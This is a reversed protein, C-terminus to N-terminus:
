INKNRKIWLNKKIGLCDKFQKCSYNHIESCEVAKKKKGKQIELIEPFILFWKVASMGLFIAAHNYRGSRMSHTCRWKFFDMWMKFSLFFDVLFSSFEWSARGGAAIGLTSQYILNELWLKPNQWRQGHGGEAWVKRAKIQEKKTRKRRPVHGIQNKFSTHVLFLDESRRCEM